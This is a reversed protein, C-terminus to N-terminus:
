TGFGREHCARVLHELRRYLNPAGLTRRRDAIYQRNVEYARIMPGCRAVMLTEEHVAGQEWAVGVFEYYDLLNIIHRDKEVDVEGTFREGAKIWRAMRLDSEAINENLSINSLLDLTRNTLAQTNTQLYGVSALVIGVVLSVLTLDRVATEHRSGPGSPARTAPERRSRDLWVSVASVATTAVLWVLWARWSVALLADWWAQVDLM